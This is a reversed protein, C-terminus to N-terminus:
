EPLGKRGVLSQFRPDSRISDMRPDSSLDHDDLLTRQKLSMTLWKIAEDNERLGVYILAVDYSSVFKQRSLEILQQAIVRADKARASIAYVYGLAGMAKASGGSLQDATEVEAIAGSFDKKQALALGLFMHAPWFTSDM